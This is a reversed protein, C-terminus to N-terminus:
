SYKRFLRLYTQQIKKLHIQNFFNSFGMWVVVGNLDKFQPPLYRPADVVGELHKQYLMPIDEVHVKGAFLFPILEPRGARIAVRIFNYVEVFGRCYSIDKTFPAGGGVDGGRFVRMCAQFAEDESYGETRYYEFVDLFDAGDEAMDVGIIRDNILRARRPYSKFTFIEMLVALGEQTSAARPPGKALWKAVHQRKGNQTTGIHVWGEHVELIDVDRQSFSARKRIKIYEGGASADAIIGDSLKVKISAGKFYVNLRGNLENVAHESSLNKAHVGGLSVDDLGKFITRMLKSLDNITNVQDYFTQKPSGYLARSLEWFRRTGRALVMEIALRYEEASDVLITGIDDKPGLRKHVLRVYEQFEKDKHAPDYGLPNRWYYATNVKPLKRFRYRFFDREVDPHWKIADLIRIPTQLQVLRESLM